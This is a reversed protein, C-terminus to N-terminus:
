APNRRKESGFGEEGYWYRECSKLYALKEARDKLRGRWVGADEGEPEGAEYTTGLIKVNEGSFSKKEEQEYEM